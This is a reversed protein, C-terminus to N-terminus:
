VLPPTKRGLQNQNLNPVGGRPHHGLFKTTLVPVDPSKAIVRIPADVFEMSAPSGTLAGDSALLGNGHDLVFAAQFGSPAARETEGSVGDAGQSQDDGVVECLGALDFSGLSSFGGATRGPGRGGASGRSRRGVWGRLLLSEGVLPARRAKTSPSRTSGRSPFSEVAPHEVALRYPAPVSGLPYDSYPLRPPISGRQPVVGWM